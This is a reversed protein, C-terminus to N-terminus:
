KQLVETLQNLISGLQTLDDVNLTNCANSV